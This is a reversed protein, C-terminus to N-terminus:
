RRLAAAPWALLLLRAVIVAFVLPALLAAVGRSEFRRWYRWLGRHKHWEVFFPRARSSVGRHHLVPVDNAVAVAYGAERLRRCFDLDEVHLRYGADWGSVADFAARPVLMLAGSCADVPQLAVREDVAISLGDRAGGAGLMRALTLDRRRAAADRRGDADRLDAGVAGAEAMSAAHALLRALAGDPLELDPNIFLLWPSRGRAAGLNCAAAFGPNGPQVDVRVRADRAAIAAVRAVTDDHSGNDVVDIQEIAPQALLAALCAEITSASQYAVVVAHVGSV